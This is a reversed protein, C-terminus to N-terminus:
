KFNKKFIDDLSTMPIYQDTKPLLCFVKKLFDEIGYQNQKYKPNHASFFNVNFFLLTIVTCLNKKKYIYLSFKHMFNM